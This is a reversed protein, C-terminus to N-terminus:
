NEEEEWFKHVVEEGIQQTAKDQTSEKKPTTKSPTEKPDSKKKKRELKDSNPANELSLVHCQKQNETEQSRSCTSSSPWSKPRKSSGPCEKKAMFMDSFNGGNNDSSKPDGGYDSGLGTNSGPASGLDSGPESGLDYHRGSGWDQDSEMDSGDSPHHSNETPRAIRPRGIM